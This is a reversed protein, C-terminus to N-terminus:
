SVLKLSNTLEKLTFPKTILDVCKTSIAREYNSKDSNGTLYIVQTDIRSKIQEVAEIGDMTGKLRIDMLILDPQHDDALEIAKEGSTAKAVVHYGLEKIMNEVVLSIIMDDEVILVRKKTESM